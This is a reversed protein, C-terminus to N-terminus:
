SLKATTVIKVERPITVNKIEDALLGEGLSKATQAFWKITEDEKGQVPIRCLFKDNSQARQEALERGRKRAFQDSESCRAVGFKMTGDDQLSGAVTIRVGKKGKGPYATHFFLTKNM